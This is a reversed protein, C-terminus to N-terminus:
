YNQSPKLIIKRLISMNATANDKKVRCYDENLITYLVWNLNNEIGGIHERQLLLKKLM